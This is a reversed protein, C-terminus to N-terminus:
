EETPEQPTIPEVNMLRIVSEVERLLEENDTSQITYSVNFYGGRGANGESDSGPAVYTLDFSTIVLNPYVGSNVVETVSGNRLNRLYLIGAQTEGDAVPLDFYADRVGYEYSTFVFGYRADLFQDNSDKLNSGTNPRIDESHRLIDGLATNLIGALSASNSEFLSEQHVRSGSDMGVGIGIVLFVLILLGILLEVMTMGARSRLKKM